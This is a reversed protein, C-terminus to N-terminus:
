SLIVDIYRSQKLWILKTRFDRTLVGKSDEFCLGGDKVLYGFDITITVRPKESLVFKVQYCLGAIEGAKELLCLEEGRRCEKKSAFERQCLESYTRIAKYKNPM